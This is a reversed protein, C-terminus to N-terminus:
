IRYPFRYDFPSPLPRRIARREESRLLIAFFQEPTIERDNLAEAYRRRGEPDAWRDLVYKFTVDVFRDLGMDELNDRLRLCALHPELDDDDWEAASIILSEVKLTSSVGRPAMLEPVTFLEDAQEAFRQNTRGNYCELAYRGPPLKVRMRAVFAYHGHGLGVQLLDRRFRNAIAECIVRDQLQIRVHCPASSETKAWGEVFGDPTVQDIYCAM